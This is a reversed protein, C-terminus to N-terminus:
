TQDAHADEKADMRAGCAYCYTQDSEDLYDRYTDSASWAGCNTCKGDEWRAHKVPAVDAAPLANLKKWIRSIASLEGKSCAVGQADSCIDTAAEQSIYVVPKNDM